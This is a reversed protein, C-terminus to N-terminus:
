VEQNVEGMEKVKAKMAPWLKDFNNNFLKAQKELAQNFFKLKNNLQLQGYYQTLPTNNVFVDQLITVARRADFISQVNMKM